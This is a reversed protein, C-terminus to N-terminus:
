EWRLAHIPSARAVRVSQGAVTGWAIVLALVGAGAFASLLRLPDTLHIHYEFTALWRNMVYYAAPWAIANAILVPKSFQWMLLRVIDTVSAGLAKRMGIEKTRREAAFSALGFLGLCAVLIAFLAFAGFMQSRKTIADYQAAIEQDVFKTRVPVTPALKAWVAEAAALTEQMRGPEVDLTLAAYAANNDSGLRYLMPTVVFQISRMQLDPVVGVITTRATRKDDVVDWYVKGIAQEPSAIGVKALFTQNVVISQTIEQSPDTPKNQRDTPFNRSFVRGALPEVGYVQFFDYDVELTEIVLKDRDNPIPTSFLLTNNNSQMPPTDSSLAAARVGPLAAVERYLTGATEGKGPLDGLGNLTVRHASDFGLDLGRAFRNQQYVISTAVILGISVAFQFVVLTNRLLASGSASSQNAKLVRAPRFRSLYIAPYFGGLVGVVVVLGAMVVLLTPDHLIDLSLQKDLFRNYPGLALEVLAVAIVLAVTATLVAEGLFQGILQRRTAGVVKRMAVERARQTARATALNVFNICALVLILLAIVSFTIVTTIDGGPKFYGPKKAHLHIDLLPMFDLSVFESVRAKEFGPVDLVANRDLFAPLEPEVRAMAAASRFLIYTHVNASTWREAVWPQKTYRQTDFLAIFDLELHTNRPLDRFVGVVQYDTENDVTLVKGVAPQDGFYKAAMQESLIVATNSALAQDRQGSAMPLDFVEFFGPDVYSFTDNFQRDGARVPQDNQYIRVVREIDSSFDKELGAKAPGPTNAFSLPDRGPVKFTIELKAIRDANPLWRDYSVEDRVFLLILLCAALGVALGGITIFSYLKHKRLNRVAVLLYNGTM